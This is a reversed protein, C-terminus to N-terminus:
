AGKFRNAYLGTVKDFGRIKREGRVPRVSIAACDDPIRAKYDDILSQLQAANKVEYQEPMRNASGDYHVSVFRGDHTAPRYSICLLM